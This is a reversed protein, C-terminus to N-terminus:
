LLDDRLYVEEDQVGTFASEPIKHQDDSRDWDFQELVDEPIENWNPDVYVTDGAIDTVTAIRENSNVVAKGTDDDSLEAAM